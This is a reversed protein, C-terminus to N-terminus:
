ASTACSAAAEPLEEYEGGIGHLPRTGEFLECALEAVRESHAKEGPDPCGLHLVSEYRLDRLHGLSTAKRRRLVDLLIGERLAFDSVVMEDIGLVAFAQELVVVGGLIIDARRPDLGVM